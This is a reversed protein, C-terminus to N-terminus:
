RIGGHPPPGECRWELRALRAELRARRGPDTAHALHDATHHIAKLNCHDIDARATGAVFSTCSLGAVLLGVIFRRM